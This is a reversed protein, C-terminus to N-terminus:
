SLVPTRRRLAQVQGVLAEVLRDVEAATNTMGFSIRLSALAEDRDMGMALLVASPEPKGSGCAAGTSVAVGEADLVRMLEQGLVGPFAVHSTNPLRPSGACHVRAEPLLEALRHEFRDRLEGLFRNRDGLDAHALAAAVGLGVIAPVNETGARRGGEQAAGVLLGELAVGQRVWLAAGGLPGHFKHGGLTLYDVGLEDVRVPVKGVAQVADCLVPVGRERCRRAVEAVPQLTGLENNALMLVVLRTTSSLAGLVADVSVVGDPGPPVSRAHAGRAVERAAAARVSPHEFAAYVVEGGDRLRDAIVANNAETGSATFIVEDPAAGLLEAVQGRARAVAARAQRGFAHASSPNGHIGELAAIMERRVRPDLPTTANHDFYLADM